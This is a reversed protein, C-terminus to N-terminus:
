RGLRTGAKWLLRLILFAPVAVIALVVLHMPQFLGELMMQEKQRLVAQVDRIDAGGKVIATACGHRFEHPHM